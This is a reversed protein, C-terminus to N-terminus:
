LAECFGESLNTQTVLKSDELDYYTFSKVSFYKYTYKTPAFSGM